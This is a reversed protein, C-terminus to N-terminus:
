EGVPIDKKDSYNRFVLNERLVRMADPNISVKLQEDLHKRRFWGYKEGFAVWAYYFWSYKPM